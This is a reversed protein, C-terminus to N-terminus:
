TDGSIPSLVVQKPVIRVTEGRRRSAQQSLAVQPQKLMVTLSFTGSQKTVHAVKPPLTRRFLVDGNMSPMPNRWQNGALDPHTFDIGSDIVAIVTSQSGTTTKWAESANVDSGYQGGNQGTNRLAWQENFQADNPIVDDKAIVFNPEAFEVQGTVLMQVAATQVDQGAPIELQEIGSDGTLDKIKRAGQTAFVLEKERHSVGARFRVLLQGNRHTANAQPAPGGTRVSHM